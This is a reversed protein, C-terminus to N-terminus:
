FEIFRRTNDSAENKKKLKGQPETLYTQRKIYRNTYGGEM